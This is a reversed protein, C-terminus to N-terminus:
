GLRLSLMSVSGGDMGTIPFSVSDLDHRGGLIYMLPLYHDPTPVSLLADKGLSEYAALRNEQREAILDRVQQEFRHAWDYPKVPHRGWSYAHLNHVINGSGLILIGQDRLPALRRGLDLHFPGPQTEDIRLQVVPVDAEPFMHVLVSWTGHDLGWDQDLLVPVPALLERVSQALNPDGSAPYQVRYLEPPFGGFDYITRPRGMATVATGPGYWHASVALIARPRSIARGLASWGETYVNTDLANM